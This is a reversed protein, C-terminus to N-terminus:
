VMICQDKTKKVNRGEEGERGMGGSGMGMGMGVAQVQELELGLRELNTYVIQPAAMTYM